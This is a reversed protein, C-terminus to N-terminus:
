VFGYIVCICKIYVENQNCIIAYLRYFQTDIFRLYFRRIMTDRTMAKIIFEVSYNSYWENVQM